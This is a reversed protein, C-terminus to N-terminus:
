LGDEKASSLIALLQKYADKRRSLKRKLGTSICKSVVANLSQQELLAFCKLVRKEEPTVYVLIKPKKVNAM